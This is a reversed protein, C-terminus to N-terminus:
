RPKKKEKLIEKIEKGKNLNTAEYCRFPVEDKRCGPSMNGYKTLENMNHLICESFACGATIEMDSAFNFVIVPHVGCM